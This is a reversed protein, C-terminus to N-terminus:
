NFRQLQFLIEFSDISAAPALIELLNGQSQEERAEVIDAGMLTIECPGSQLMHSMEQFM